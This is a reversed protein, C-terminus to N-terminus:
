FVPHLSVRECTQYIAFHQNVVLVAAISFERVVLCHGADIWQKAEIMLRFFMELPPSPLGRFRVETVEGRFLSSDYGHESMNYVM